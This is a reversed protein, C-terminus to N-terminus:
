QLAPNHQQLLVMQSLSLPLEVLDPMFQASQIEAWSLGDAVYNTSGKCYQITTYEQLALVWRLLRGPPHHKQMLPILPQHDTEVMVDSGQLFPHFKAFAWIIALLEKETTSYNTKASALSRSIFSIPRWSDHADQQLLVAGLGHNSADTQLLFPKQFNPHALVAAQLIIQKLQNFSQQCASTWNYKSDKKLLHRLPYTISALNPVFRLSFSAMGLFSQLM